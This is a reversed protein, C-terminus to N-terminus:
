AGRPIMPWYHPAPISRATSTGTVRPSASVTAGDEAARLHCPGPCEAEVLDGAIM